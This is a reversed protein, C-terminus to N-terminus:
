KKRLKSIHQKIINKRAAAQVEMPVEAPAEVPAQEAAMEQAAEIIEEPSAGAQELESVVQAAQVIDEPSVGQAALEDAMADLMQTADGEAPAAAAEEELVEEPLVKEPETAAVDDLVAEAEEATKFLGSRLMSNIDATKQEIARLYGATHDEFSRYIESYLAPNQAAVKELFTTQVPQKVEAVKRLGEVRRLIANGLSGARAIKTNESVNIDNAGQNIPEGAALQQPQESAPAGTKACICQSAAADNVNQAEESDAKVPGPTAALDKQAESGAAGQAQPDKITEVTKGEPETVVSETATKQLEVKSYFNDLLRSILQDNSTKKLM